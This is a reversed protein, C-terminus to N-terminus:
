TGSPMRCTSVTGDSLASYGAHVADQGERKRREEDEAAGRGPGDAHSFFYELFPPSEDLRAVGLFAERPHLLRDPQLGAVRLVAGVVMAAAVQRHLVVDAQAVLRALRVLEINGFLEIPLRQAEIRGIGAGGGAHLAQRRVAAVLRQEVLRGLQQLPVIGIRGVGPHALDEGLVGSV